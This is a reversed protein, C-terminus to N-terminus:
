FTVRLALQVQRPNFDSRPTGFSALPSGDLNGPNTSGNCGIAAPNFQCFDVAGYVTNFFRTNVRNLINFAEAMGQLHVRETVGFTRSLRLDVSQYSDGKFTNRPEIGVRQNTAFVSGNTDRGSFITFWNPSQITTVLGLEWGNVVANKKTPGTITGNLVLRQPVDDASNAREGRFGPVYPDQPILVFSPNPGNDITHSWTYSVGWGIHHTPRQNFNVLLGDFQSSWKSDAELFLGYSPDVVTSPGGITGYNLKPGATGQLDHYTYPLAGTQAPDKLNVPWFSGLKRGRVGLYSIDIVANSYPEFEIGLSNQISYAARHNQAFRVVTANLQFGDIAATPDFQPTPSPYTGSLLLNLANQGSAPNFFPAFSLPVYVYLQTTSDLNDEVNERGTLKTSGNAGAVAGGCSPIQCMLLPSPITGHFLGAGGRIVINHSSALKYAFGLRPDFETMDNNIAVHPWTEFQWRLGANLTLNPTARWKDQFYLGGYTHHLTGEAQNRVAAPVPASFVAPAPALFYTSENFGNAADFKEYFLTAPNGNVFDNLTNFQAEFPYFLPFSETTRLWDFNGGFQVTHKGAIRTVNDVLETRPEQYFEPNGRNIGATFVGTVELHPEAVAAPFDFTRRAYEVRLENVWNTYTSTLSGVLSNDHLDNNRFSSPLDGGDNLASVGTLRLNNFFYRASLYHHSSLTSDLKVLFNDYNSLRDIKLNEPALGFGTLATNIATINNLIVGNYLPSESRRQGEYNGFFFTRDKKIPGGLTFGFQNQHLKNFGPASLPNKADMADNRFYEYASGHFSNTGSKTIINVIGGVARGFETSYSSNIVRFEQVAEQSPTTKQIGSATSMNDAGDIAVFNYHINQGAFALKTVPEVIVDTSGSTTDGISVGPALLAFDIFQRGNVPLTEIEREAIVSSVMSRTPEVAEAEGKVEVEQTVVGPPLAFDAGVVTGIDLHVRRIQKQFGKQEASLSYDGVPLLLFQFGGTDNSVTSRTLGTNTNTAIVKTKPLVAGSSDRTTGEITATTTQAKLSVAFAASLCVALVVRAFAQARM